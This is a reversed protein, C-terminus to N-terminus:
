GGRGSEALTVAAILDDQRWTHVCFVGEALAPEAAALAGALRVAIQGTIPDLDVVQVSRPGGVLGYGLAKALAEKACWARLSWEYRDEGAVGALRVREEESFAAEVFGEALPRVRELDIGLRLPRAPDAVGALAVAVRGTHALSVVPAPRGSEWVPGRVLPRGREDPLIVIAAPALDEGSVARWVQRVAEKAVARGALWALRRAAPGRLRQLYAREEPGLFCGAWVRQWFEQDEALPVLLRRCAVTLGVPLRAIPERWEQSVEARQPDLILRYFSTPLDFRRDEWGAIAAWLAGDPGVLHIDSRIRQEDLVAVRATCALAQGTAPPPGYLTLREVRYPFIVQGRDLHEMTWFGIVQGAADLVVPDLVFRPAPISRFFDAAPRAILRVSIGGPGTQEIAAVGQWRPGHFMVARYLDEPRWRSPGWGARDVVPSVAPAPYRSAMVVVGEAVLGAETGESQSWVQVVVETPREARRAVVRLSLPPGDFAIWRTARVTHLGVVVQDPFLAIAAEAMVELTLALPLVALPQLGSGADAEIRGLRHDALYLDEAPDFVREAVLERGPRWTLPRGLLPYRGTPWAPPAEGEEPALRAILREVIQGLTRCGALNDLPQDALGAVQQRLSGIIEVRKIADVGLDAELDLGPDIMEEPYGTRAGVIAVLRRTLTTRLDGGPAGVPGTPPEIAAPAPPSAAPSVTGDATVRRGDPESAPVPSSGAPAGGLFAQMVQEQLALFQGMTALYAQLVPAGADAGAPPVPAGSHASGAAAAPPAVPPSVSSPPRGRLQEVVEASLTMLPAGTAIALRRDSAPSEDEKEWDVPTCELGETLADLDLAVGHVALLGILHHVQTLGSRRQANATVALFPRGRLTDEVFAALNGRPGVEVFLRVGAAYLAEVTRQFEVPRAWQEAMLRRIAAPDTPYPAATACSYVPVAPPRLPIAAYATALWEAYPRFATTHYARDLPLREVLLGEATALAQVRDVAAPAGVLVTQHPCNVMAVTVEGGAAQALATAKERDAGVALAAALPLDCAGVAEQFVQSLLASLQQCSSESTLDLVGAAALAVYEGSSHGAVAAPRLGLRRLLALLALDATVVAEVAGEMQWLHREAWAREDAAPRPFLYDSPVYGRPHGAFVRDMAEFVARVVPFHWVLDALMLPYQAGEGPFLFALQGTAALPATTYYLGSPDKLQRCGPDALRELARAVKAQLDALSTAVIALRVGAPERAFRRHLSVALDTLSISGVPRDLQGAVFRHLQQLRERLAAPSPAALLYLESDRVPRPAPPATPPRLRPAPPAEGPQAATEPRAVPWHRQVPERYEELVVHANIGGFGFANVGARRPEAGGHVWPRTETNLYFPTKELEPHPHEGHLTPPLIKHHLALTAKILSAVGAAPLAHGIMSKVSGLACWPRGDRPGFVRALAQIEVLDGVPTGTGHAEILGVTRPSVGAAAYARRLALEEGEPRPALLGVGRGDSAVGVGRVVAYIRDGDREADALRKLVVMGVGESLLTGDAAADFPRVEGRRSIAGLQCFVVLVPVPTVVQAGGVLMLDCEGTVLARVASHLAVLSSACAADVTYTPGMLDLRNAIRGVIVNPILGPVVEPTVPPLSQKLAQRIQELDAATYEPHLRRIIELTQTVILSHQVMTLNGRNLYTGKGLVIGTRARIGAPMEAYGADALAARAVALALWQDPEGGVATPPIGYALPDFLALPALYGGRKCYVRDTETSDPDYFLAPDWAEVPPDSIAEVKNLINQWFTAVDPAGPFLGALGIIAVGEEHHAQSM